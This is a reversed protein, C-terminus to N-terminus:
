SRSSHVKDESSTQLINSTRYMTSHSNSSFPMYKSFLSLAVSSGYCGDTSISSLGSQRYACTRGFSSNNTSSVALHSYSLFFLFLPSLFSLVLRFTHIGDRVFQSVTIPFVWTGSPITFYDSDICGVGNFYASPYCIQSSPDPTDTVTTPLSVVTLETADITSETCGPRIAITGVVFIITGDPILCGEFPNLARIDANGIPEPLSHLSCHYHPFIQLDSSTPHTPRLQYLTFQLHEKVHFFATIQCSSM